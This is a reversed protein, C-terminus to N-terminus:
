RREVLRIATGRWLVHLSEPTWQEFTADPTPDAIDAVGSAHFKLLVVSHRVGPTWGWETQYEIDAPSGRELGVSLIMPGPPLKALERDSCQVVQVDWRTGATKLKLGRYLGQWTTGERTLCLGAMEQETAPIGHRTLLTAACAPACTKRTTQVCVGHDWTHGCAPATGLLPLITAYCGTTLLAALSVSKRFAGGPVRRWVLGSLFGMAPLFWNGLVVLSSFPLLAALMPTHWVYRLYVFVAGITALALFDCTLRSAQRTSRLALWFAGVALASMLVVAGYLDAM